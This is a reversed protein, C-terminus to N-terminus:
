PLFGAFQVTFHNPIVYIGKVIHVIFDNSAAIQLYLRRTEVPQVPM